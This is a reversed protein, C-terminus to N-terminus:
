AATRTLILLIVGTLIIVRIIIKTMREVGEGPTEKILGGVTKFQYHALAEFM